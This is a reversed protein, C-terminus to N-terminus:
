STYSEVDLNSDTVQKTKRKRSICYNPLRPPGLKLIENYIENMPRESVTYSDILGGSTRTIKDFLYFIQFFSLKTDPIPITILQDNEKKVHQKYLSQLSVVLTTIAAQTADPKLKLKVIYRAGFRERVTQVPALSVFHGGQIVAMRQCM